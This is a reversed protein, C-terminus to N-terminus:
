DSTDAKRAYGIGNPAVIRVAAPIIEVNLSTDFFVEGDLDVLLPDDSHIEIKKFKKMTIYKPYRRFGGTTYPTILFATKISSTCNYFVADLIGDNPMATTVVSYKGGYCPGNAINFTGFVGSYDEGDITIKYYQNLIKKNFVARAGYIYFLISYIFSIIKQNRRFLRPVKNYIRLQNMNIDSEIGVTCFNIGYNNGCRIIDTIIAPSVAQLRINRFLANKREGFARVFDNSVGYPVAALEVNPLGVIGNLCDFLIGDGGVAYVRVVDDSKYERMLKRILGIAHRPYQSIHISYEEGELSAFCDRIERLVRDQAAQEPFSRPNIVFIHKM